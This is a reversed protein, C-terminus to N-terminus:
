PHTLCNSLEWRWQCHSCKCNLDAMDKAQTMFGEGAVWAEGENEQARSPHRDGTTM